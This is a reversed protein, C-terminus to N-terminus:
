LEKNHVSPTNLTSQRLVLRCLLRLKPAMKSKLLLPLSVFSLFKYYPPLPRDSILLPAATLPYINRKKM